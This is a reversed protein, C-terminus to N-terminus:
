SIKTRVRLARISIAQQIKTHGPVFRNSKSHGQVLTSTM